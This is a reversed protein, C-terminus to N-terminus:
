TILLGKDRKEEVFPKLKTNIFYIMDKRSLKKLERVADEAIVNLTLRAVSELPELGLDLDENCKNYALIDVYEITHLNKMYYIVNDHTIGSFKYIALNSYGLNVAIAAWVKRAKPYMRVRSKTFIDFDYIEDLKDKIEKLTAM